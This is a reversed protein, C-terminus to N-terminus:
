SPSARSAPVERRSLALGAAGAAGLHLVAALLALLALGHRSEDIQHLVERVDLTAFLLAVVATVILVAPNDWFWVAAAVLLSVVVAAALAGTSEPNIGLITEASERDTAAAEDAHDEATEGQEGAVQGGSGEAGREAAEGEPHSEAGEDSDGETRANGATAVAGPPGPEITEGVLSREAMIGIALVITALILLLAAATRLSGPHTM